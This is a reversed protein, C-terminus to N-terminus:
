TNQCGWLMNEAYSDQQSGYWERIRSSRGFPTNLELELAYVSVHPPRFNMGRLFSSRFDEM